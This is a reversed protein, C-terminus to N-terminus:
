QLSQARVRAIRLVQDRTYLLTGGGRQDLFRNQSPLAAISAETAILSIMFVIRQCTTRHSPINGRQCYYGGLNSCRTTSPGDPALSPRHNEAFHCSRVGIARASKSTGEPGHRGCAVLDCGLAEFLKPAYEFFRVPFFDSSCLCRGHRVPKECQIPEKRLRQGALVLRRRRRWWRRSLASESFESIRYSASVTKMKCTVGSRKQWKPLKVGCPEFM